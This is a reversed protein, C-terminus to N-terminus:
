NKRFVYSFYEYKGTSFWDYTESGVTGAFNLAIPHLVKPALKKILVKRREDDLELSKVVNPTINKEFVKEFGLKELDTKLEPMEWDYRFDTLLFHGGPKLIRSVEGLFASFDPYRHSSEVNLVVDFSEDKIALEQANGQQFSLGDIKYFSNCFKAARANLDIGLAKKPQFTKAIYSLGGGRGSGVELLSKNKLDVEEALHHYLQISYRNAEDEGSFELKQDESAYGFNMFRLEANKDVNSVYWYWIKFFLDRLKAKM